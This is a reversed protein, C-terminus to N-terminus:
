KVKRLITIKAPAHTRAYGLEKLVKSHATSSITKPQILLIPHPSDGTRTVTNRCSSEPNKKLGSINKSYLFRHGSSEVKQENSACTQTHYHLVDLKFESPRPTLQNEQGSKPPKQLSSPCDQPVFLYKTCGEIIPSPLSLISLPVTAKSQFFRETFKNRRFPSPYDNAEQINVFSANRFYLPKPSCEIESYMRAKVWSSPQDTVSICQKEPYIIGRLGLIGSAEKKRFLSNRSKGM